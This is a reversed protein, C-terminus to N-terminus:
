KDRPPEIKTATITDSYDITSDDPNWDPKREARLRANEERPLRLAELEARLRENERELNVIAAELIAIRQRPTM